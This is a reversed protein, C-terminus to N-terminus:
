SELIEQLLKQAKILLKKAVEIKEKQEKNKKDNEVSQYNSNLTPRGRKSSVPKIKGDQIGLITEILEKKNLVCPSKVGLDKGIKRLPYISMKILNDKTYYMIM